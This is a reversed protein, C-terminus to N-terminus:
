CATSRVFCIVSKRINNKLRQFCNIELASVMPAKLVPKSVSFMCHGVKAHSAATARKETAADGAATIYPRFNIKFDSTSLPEDYELKL